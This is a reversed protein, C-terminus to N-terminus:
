NGPARSGAARQEDSRGFPPIVGGNKYIEFCAFFQDRMTSVENHVRRRMFGFMKQIEAHIPELRKDQLLMGEQFDLFDLLSRKTQGASNNVSTRFKELVKDAVTGNTESM